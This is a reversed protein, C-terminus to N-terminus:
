KNVNSAKFNPPWQIAQLRPTLTSVGCTDEQQSEHHRDRPPSDTTHRRSWGRTPGSSSAVASEVRTARSRASVGHDRDYEEWRRIENEHRRDHSANISSRADRQSNIAHRLDSTPILSPYFTILLRLSCGGIAKQTQLERSAM